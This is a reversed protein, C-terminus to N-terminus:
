HLVEFQEPVTAYVIISPTVAYARYHYTTSSSLGTATVSFEGTSGPAGLQVSAEKITPKAFECWCIGHGTIEQDGMSVISGTIKYSGDSVYTTHDSTILLLNDDEMLQCSHLVLLLILLLGPILLVQRLQNKITSAM